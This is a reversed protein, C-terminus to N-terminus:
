GNPPLQRPVATADVSRLRSAKASATLASTPRPQDAPRSARSEVRHITRRHQNTPRRTGAPQNTATNPLSEHAGHHRGLALPRCALNRRRAAYGVLGDGNAASGEKVFDSNMSPTTPNATPLGPPVYQHRIGMSIEWTEAGRWGRSTRPFVWGYLLREFKTRRYTASHVPTRTMNPQPSNWASPNPRCGTPVKKIRIGTSKGRM